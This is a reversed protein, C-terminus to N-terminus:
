QNNLLVIIKRKIVNANLSFDIIKYFKNFQSCMRRFPDANAYNSRFFNISLLEFHRSPRHPVRFSINHLLFSSCIDGNILKLIFSVNLMTRRSKLTPLKILALRSTYSPLDLPNWQLGRLCFLLFQKQVSEIYNNHTMYIPDWVISAYELVPRVLSVYLQKTVYPDKFEKAWRKIFGLICRAKNVTISIHNIFNLKADLLVGLDLMTDCNELQHNGLSYNLKIHNGRYFSMHKCKKLNLEMLNLNCWSLFSDLDQQLLRHDAYQNFSLFIKVDDAYMLVNSFKIVNPLDNIFLTFLLPGLHSGQPVGSLVDILKSTVNKFRVCQKRNLLYSEIWKLSNYSFGMTNLKKLLLKHNVKDFAKSFDTYVIDTQKRQVFGRNIITTLQLLNTTTSCGKRFGHQASSLLSSVQHSICETVMKEFLKPIISLKAIGRYNIIDSKTGSKYFPIIFSKKWISPFYGYRISMNFIRTLPVAFFEACNILICSPINDPGSRNSFKLKKLNYLITSFDFFPISISQNSSQSCSSISSCNYDADSYTTSFFDAFMNSINLDDSSECDQFKMLTPFVTSKRKSNVFNYFSKPNNKFDISMKRLYNTYCYKNLANYEARCTVYKIYDILRGTKKYNKYLKNKKNKVASLHKTNWPPGSPKCPSKKPICLEMLSYIKTYFRKIIEDLTINSPLFLEDWNIDDLLTKFLDYNTKKFCLVKDKLDTPQSYSSFSIPLNVEITPHYRDEPTTIPESRKVVIDVYENVFILDLLKGHDNFIGNLQYLSLDMLSNLFEICILNNTSTIPTFFGDDPSYNWTISPMNFDGVSIVYDNLKANRCVYKIANAHEIYVSHPSSPPIYSCTIYINRQNLKIAVFEINSHSDYILAESPFINSVAILVGGSKRNNERDCRFIQFNDCMIESNLINNTLWTETFIVIEHNFNFSDVFLSSLKTNLGRANQYVLSISDVTAAGLKKIYKHQM